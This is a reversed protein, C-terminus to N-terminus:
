SEPPPPIKLRQGPRLIGGLSLGNYRALRHVPIGFRRAIGWLTDGAEVKYVSTTPTSSTYAFISSKRPSSVKRGYHPILLRQGPRLLSRSHLENEERLASMSVGFRRSIKWLTDGKKVRYVTYGEAELPLPAKLRPLAPAVRAVLEETGPPVRLAFSGEPPTMKRRLAPNLVLLDEMSIGIAKALAELSIGGPVPVTTWTLPTATAPLEFGYYKLKLGIRYAAILKPVYNKTERPLIRHPHHLMQWYDNHGLRRSARDIRREGANYAALALEWSGYSQYLDRLYRSAALTSLYPDSREDLYPTRRLKYRRATGRIFQWIGRARARSVAHPNLGSEIFALWVLKPPLGNEQLWHAIQPGYRAMRELSRAYFARGKETQTFFEIWREVFPHEALLLADFEEEGLIGMSSPLPYLSIGGESEPEPAEEAPEEEEPFEADPLDEDLPFIEEKSWTAENEHLITGVRELPTELDLTRTALEKSSARTKESLTPDPRVKLLACGWLGAALLICLLTSCPFKM